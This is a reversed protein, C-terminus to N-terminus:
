EDINEALAYLGVDQLVETLSNWSVPKGRGSVWEQLIRRNIKEVNCQYQHEINAVFTGNADELLKIGVEYYRSGIDKCIEIKGYKGKLSILNLMDPTCSRVINETRTSGAEILLNIFMTDGGKVLGEITLYHELTGM